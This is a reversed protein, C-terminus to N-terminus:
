LTEGLIAGLIEVMDCGQWIFRDVGALRLAVENAGPRQAMYVKAAGAAKLAGAAEGAMAEYIDDSSCLCALKAGSRAFAEAAEGATSFGENSIAAIGGAALFNVAFNARATHAAVPGLNALFVRPPLAMAHATERLHEFTASPRFPRFADAYGGDWQAPLPALVESASEAINPFASTGTIPEKGSAAAEARRARVEAVAEALMGGSVAALLGGECEMRQFLSWARECLDDTLREIAPAGGAPDDVASLHAEENLILQINRSLRRAQADPLGLAQTHPLVSLADAGGTVASFAATTARLVNVWPDTRTMQRWATEAHISVPEPELGCAEELRALLRRSARIKAITLFQDADAAIRYGIFSRAEGPGIGAREAARLLSAAGSLLVALEQAESAGAAHLPRADAALFPGSFGEARLVKSGEFAASAHQETQSALSLHSATDRFLFALPDLGFAIRASAPNLGSGLVYSALASTIAGGDAPLDLALACGAPDIGALVQQVCDANTPLGFGCAGNSRAFVLHLGAAGGELDDCAQRNAEVPDTHDIRSLATWAGSTRRVPRAGAEVREPLPAIEIGDATRSILREFPAGRLAKEALARWQTESAKPFAAGFPFIEDGEAM